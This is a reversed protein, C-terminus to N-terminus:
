PVARIITSFRGTQCSVNEGSQSGSPQGSALRSIAPAGGTRVNEVMRQPAHGSRKPRGPGCFRRQAIEVLGGSTGYIELRRVGRLNEITRASPLSDGISSERFCRLQRSTRQPYVTQSQPHASRTSQRHNRIASSRSESSQTAQTPQWLAWPSPRPRKTGPRRLSRPFRSRPSEARPEPM